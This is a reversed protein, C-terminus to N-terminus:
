WDIRLGLTYFPAVFWYDFGVTVESELVICTVFHGHLIEQRIRNWQEARMEEELCAITPWDKRYLDALRRISQFYAKLPWSAFHGVHHSASRVGELEGGM